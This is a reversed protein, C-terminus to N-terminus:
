APSGARRRGSRGTRRHRRRRARTICPSLLGLRAPVAPLAQETRPQAPHRPPRTSRPNKRSASASAPRSSASRNVVACRAPSTPETMAPVGSSFLCGRVPLGGLSEGPVPATSRSRPAREGEAEHCDAQVAVDHEGRQGREGGPEVRGGASQLPNSGGVRQRPGPQQQRDAPDAVPEAMASNEHGAEGEEAARGDKGGLEYVAGRDQDRGPGHHAGSRRDDHRHPQSEDRHQEGRLGVPATRHRDGGDAGHHGRGATRQEAAPQQAVEMPARTLMASPM